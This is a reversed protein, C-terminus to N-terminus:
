LIKVVITYKITGKQPIIIWFKIYKLLTLTFPLPGRYHLPYLAKSRAPSDPSRIETIALNEAVTWVPGSAWGDEKVIPVPDKERFYFPLPTAKVVWGCRAGLNVRIRSVHFIPHVGLLALL